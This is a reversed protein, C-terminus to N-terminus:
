FAALFPNVIEEQAVQLPIGYQKAMKNAGGGFVWTFNINKARKYQDPTFDEGWIKTATLVHLSIGKKAADIMSPEGSLAAAIRLEVQDFDSSIIAKGPSAVIMRRVAASSLLKM